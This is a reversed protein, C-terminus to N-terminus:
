AGLARLTTLVIKVANVRMELVQRMEAVFAVGAGDTTLEGDQDREAAYNQTIAQRLVERIDPRKDQGQLTELSARAASWDSIGAGPGAPTITTSGTVDTELGALAAELQAVTESVKTSMTSKQGTTLPIEVDGIGVAGRFLIGAAIFLKDLRQEGAMVRRHVKEVKAATLAM